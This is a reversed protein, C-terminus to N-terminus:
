ASIILSGFRGPDFKTANRVTLVPCPSERIVIEAVSGLNPRQGKTSSTTAMVLVQAKLEIAVDLIHQAPNGTRVLLRHKVDGLPVRVLEDFRLQAFYFQRTREVLSRASNVLPTISRGNSEPASKNTETADTQEPLPVVHLVYLMGGNLRTLDRALDLAALSNVDFDVPCLIRGDDTANESDRVHSNV